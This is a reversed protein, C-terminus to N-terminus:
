YRARAEVANLAALGFLLGAAARWPSRPAFLAFGLAASCAAGALVIAAAARAAAGARDLNTHSV